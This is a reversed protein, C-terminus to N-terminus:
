RPTLAALSDLIDQLNYGKNMLYRIVRDRHTTLEAARRQALHNLGNLIVKRPVEEMARQAKSASIGKSRLGAIVRLPGWKKHEVHGRVYAEIFREESLFNEEKMREVAQEVQSESGGWQMIKKRADLACREQMSCWKRLRDLWEEM